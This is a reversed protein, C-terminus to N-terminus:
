ISDCILTPDYSTLSDSAGCDDDRERSGDPNPVGSRALRSYVHNTARQKHGRQNLHQMSAHRDTSRSDNYFRM